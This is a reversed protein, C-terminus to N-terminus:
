LIIVEDSGEFWRITSLMSATTQIDAWVKRARKAKKSRFRKSALYDRWRPHLADMYKIASVLKAEGFDSVYIYNETTM